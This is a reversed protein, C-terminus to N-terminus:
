LHFHWYRRCQYRRETLPCCHFPRETLLCCHYLQVAAPGPRVTRPLDVLGPSTVIVFPRSVM